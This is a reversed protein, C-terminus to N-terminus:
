KLKIKEEVLYGLTRESKILVRVRPENKLPKDITGKM